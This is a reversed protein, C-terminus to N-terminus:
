PLVGRLAVVLVMLGLTWLYLEFSRKWIQRAPGAFGGRDMRRGYLAGVLLGSLFVFGQADQVFGLEAHNVRVLAYKGGFLHTILMFVLFYGRLGDLLAVRAM